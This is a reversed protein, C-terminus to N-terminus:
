NSLKENKPENRQMMKMMVAPEMFTWHEVAKGDKFRALEIDTKHFVQGKKMGMADMLMTEEFSTWIMVFDDNAFEVKSKIPSNQSMGIWKEYEEKMKVLGKLEGEMYHDICDDAVFKGLETFDKKEFCKLIGHMAELNSKAKLSMLNVDECNNNKIIPEGNVAEQDNCSILMTFLFLITPLLLKKKM